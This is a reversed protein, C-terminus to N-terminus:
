DFGSSFVTEPAASSDTSSLEVVYGTTGGRVEVRWGSLFEGSGGPTTKWDVVSLTANSPSLVRIRLKGATVVNGSVTPRVPVNVQFIGTTGSTLSFNDQVTLKRERFDINRTWSQVGAGAIYAPTLNATANVEGNPGTSNLTMSSVSPERQKIISGAREFRVVNHVDTGQQIGSHTWINETVALWDNEFLTFSGQDQHAHSQVYRGASFALWMANTDWGTRTFLHGVGRAHYTLATPPSTSTGADLLDYRFNFGHQMTRVSINNLWWAALNKAAANTTMQRAELVIRRQYDYLNPISTRAQDGIPAFRDRTPVTANVWYSITDTMHANANGLDLGTADRWLRYLPFLRMHSTGYGTGEESGGGTLAAFYGELVPLKNSVLYSRWNNAGNPYALVWNMTAELFSYHYNNAPDNTGWGSWTATRAGWKAQTPNWVNYIAQEAYAAWRTKQSANVQANCWDYTIALDGIMAGVYLYSDRAVQPNTNASIATEAARVQAEVMQVAYSCYPAQGTLRFMYAADSAPFDYGPNGAVATDVWNKFRAYAPKNADVYTLDLDIAASAMQPATVLLSVTAALAMRIDRLPFRM